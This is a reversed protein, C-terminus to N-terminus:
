WEESDLIAQRVVARKERTHLRTFRADDGLQDLVALGLHLAERAIASRSVNETRMENRRARHEDLEEILDDTLTFGVSRTDDSM